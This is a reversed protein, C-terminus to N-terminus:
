MLSLQTLTQPISQSYIAVLMLQQLTTPWSFSTLTNSEDSIIDSDSILLRKLALPLKGITPRSNPYIWLFTLSSPLNTLSHTFSSSLSLYILQSPLHDVPYNVAGEACFKLKSLSSPLNDVPNNFDKGLTLKHLSPPLNDIPQNFQKGFKLKFISSPLNNVPRNFVDGLTLETLSSPLIPLPLNFNQLTLHTPQSPLVDPLPQNPLTCHTCKHLISHISHQPANFEIQTASPPIQSHACVRVKKPAFYHLM